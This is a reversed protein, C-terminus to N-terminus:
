SFYFNQFIRCHLKLYWRSTQKFGCKPNKAVKKDFNLCKERKLSKKSFIAVNKVNKGIEPRYTFNEIKKKQIIVM